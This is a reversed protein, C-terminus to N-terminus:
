LDNVQEAEEEEKKKRDAAEERETKIRIGIDHLQEQVASVITFIMVM